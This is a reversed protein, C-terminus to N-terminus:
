VGQWGYFGSPVVGAFTAAAGLLPGVNMTGVNGDVVYCGLYYLGDPALGTLLSLPFGGKGTAPDATLDGNWHGGSVNRFWALGLDFDIALAIISGSGDLVNSGPVQVSNNYRVAIGNSGLTGMNQGAYPTGGTLGGGNSAVGAATGFCLGCQAGGGTGSMEAYCKGSGRGVNAYAVASTTSGSSNTLILGAGSVTLDGGTAWKTLAFAPPVSAAKKRQSMSQLKFGSMGGYPSVFRLGPNQFGNVQVM